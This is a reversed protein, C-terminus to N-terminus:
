GRVKEIHETLFAKFVQREKKTLKEQIEAIKEADLYGWINLIAKLDKEAKRKRESNIIIKHIAYAEPCPLTIDFELYRVNMTNSSLINMHRLAQATVGLNTYLTPMTGAGKQEILFEVEFDNKLFKTTNNLRDENVLYGEERALAILSVPPTPKRMNKLLFDVDRTRILPDYGEPLVDTKKYIYEAWSGVLIVHQLLDNDSLLKIFKLLDTDKM